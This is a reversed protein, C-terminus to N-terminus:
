GVSLVQDGTPPGDHGTNLRTRASAANPSEFQAALSEVLHAPHVHVFAYPRGDDQGRDLRRRAPRAIPRCRAPESADALAGTAAPVRRLRSRRWALAGAIVVGEGCYTKDVIEDNPKASPVTVDGHDQLRDDDAAGRQSTM